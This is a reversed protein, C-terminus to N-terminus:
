MADLEYTGNVDWIKFIKTIKKMKSDKEQCTAKIKLIQKIWFPTKHFLLIVITGVLFPLTPFCNFNWHQQPVATLALFLFCVSEFHNSLQNNAPQFLSNMIMTLLCLISVAFKTINPDVLNPLFSLTISIALRLILKYIEWWRFKHKFGGTINHHFQFDQKSYFTIFLLFLPIAILAFLYLLGVATAILHKGQFCVTDGEYLWFRKEKIAPCTLIMFAHISLDTYTLLLISWIQTPINRTSLWSIKTILFRQLLIFLVAIALPATMHFLVIILLNNGPYLCFPIMQTVLFNLPLIPLALLNNVKPSIYPSSNVLILYLINAYFIISRWYDGFLNVKFIMIVLMMGIVILFFLAIMLVPKDCNICSSYAEINNLFPSNFLTKSDLCKGCLTGTLEKRCQNNPELPNYVCKGPEAGFYCECRFWLCSASYLQEEYNTEVHRLYKGPEIQIKEGICTYGNGQHKRDCLCEERNLYLGPPCDGVIVGKCASKKYFDGISEVCIVGLGKWMSKITINSTYNTLFSLHPNDEDYAINHYKEEGGKAGDAYVIGSLNARTVVFHSFYDKSSIKVNFKYGPYMFYFSTIAGHNKHLETIMRHTIHRTNLNHLTPKSSAKCYNYMNIQYDDNKGTQNFLSDNCEFHSHKDLEFLFSNERTDFECTVNRRIDLKGKIYKKDFCKGLLQTYVTNGACVGSGTGATNNLMRITSIDTGILFCHRSNGKFSGQWDLFINEYYLSYVYMGGGYTKASNGIIELTSNKKKNMSIRSESSMYVGGGGAGARNNSIKLIGDVFIESYVLAIGGGNGKPTVNDSVTVNGTTNISVRHSLIAGGIIGRNGIFTSNKLEIFTDEPIGSSALMLAGGSSGSNNRFECDLIISSGRSLTYDIFVAGGNPGYNNTFNCGRIAIDYKKGQMFMAIAGGAPMEKLEDKSWSSDLRGGSFNGKVIHIHSFDHDSGINVCVSAGQAAKNDIFTSNEIKISSRGKNMHCVSVASGCNVASSVGPVQDNFYNVVWTNGEFVVSKVSVNSYNYNYNYNDSKNSFVLIAKSSGGDKSRFESREVKVKEINVCLLNIGSVNQFKCEEINVTYCSSFMLFGLNNTPRDKIKVKKNCNNFHIGKIFVDLVHHLYLVVIPQSDQNCTVSQGTGSLTFETLDSVVVQGDFYYDQHKELHIVINKEDRRLHQLIIDTLNESAQVFVIFNLLFYPVLLKM